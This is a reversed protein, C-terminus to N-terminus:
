CYGIDVSVIKGGETFTGNVPALVGGNTTVYVADRDLLGRGLTASTPGALVTENLGGLLTTLEGGDLPISLLTNTAAGSMFAVGREEDLVFDDMVTGNALIEVPGVIHDGSVSVPLRGFLATAQTSFYLYVTDGRRLVKLGNIGLGTSGRPPALLPDTVLVKSDGSEVDVLWIQGNVSDAAVILNEEVNFTDIGNLFGAKPLSAAEQVVAGSNSIADYARLDLSWISWTGAGLDMTAVSFNGAAVYFQDPQVETIGLLGVSPFNHVLTATQNSTPAIPSVLPDILYVSPSPAVFTVLLQGNQRARINEVYTIPGPFQHVLHSPLPLNAKQDQPTATSTALSILTFFSVITAFTFSQMAFRLQSLSSVPIDSAPLMIIAM